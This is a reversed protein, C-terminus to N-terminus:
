KGANPTLSWIVEKTDRNSGCSPLWIFTSADL